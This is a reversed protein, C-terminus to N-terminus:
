RVTGSQPGQAPPDLEKQTLRLPRLPQAGLAPPGPRWERRQEADGAFRRGSSIGLRAADRLDGFADRRREAAADRVSVVV